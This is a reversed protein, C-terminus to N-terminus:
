SRKIYPVHLTSIAKRRTEMKRRDYRATTMPNSHRALKSVTVLDVGGDLLDSIFSRRLDHFNAAQIFAQNCRKHFLEDIGTVGVARSSLKGAKDFGHFMRGPERGRLEIWDLLADEAGDDIPLHSTKGGKGNKVAVTHSVADFDSLDMKSVESRRLGLGYGLCIIAADRVGAATKDAACVTMLAGLEGMSLARGELEAETDDTSSKIPKLKSIKMYDSDPIQGLNWAEFMVRRLAVLLRNVTTLSYDPNDQLKARIAQCHQYRLESWPLSQYDDFGAIKAIKNLATRQTPQSGRKLSALYISAPNTDPTTMTNHLTILDDM